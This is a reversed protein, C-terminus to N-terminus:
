ADQIFSPAASRRSVLTMMGLDISHAFAVANQWVTAM